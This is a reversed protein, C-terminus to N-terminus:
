CECDHLVVCSTRTRVCGFGMDLVWKEMQYKSRFVSHEAFFHSAQEESLGSFRAFDTLVTRILSQTKLLVVDSASHNFKLQQLEIVAKGSTGSLPTVTHM